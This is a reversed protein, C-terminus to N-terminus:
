FYESHSGLIKRPVRILRHFAQKGVPALNRGQSSVGRKAIAAPWKTFETSLIEPHSKGFREKFRRCIYVKLNHFIKFIGFPIFLLIIFGETALM